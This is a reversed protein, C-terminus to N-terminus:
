TLAVAAFRAADVDEEAFQLEYLRRYIGDRALLEEHTGTEAIRGADMVLIRDARRVTSLRHAIVITTRGQMLNNLAHQVLRESETDLASTAEDLILIPADKLIARAIALRQRQGGSLILGREGVVTDYGAPLKTIFEDALAAQAAQKIAADNDHRGYAGYAINARVTDNFLNVDQTVMAMQRRLAALKLDRVDTGDLLVQGDTVDYFRLLLNTLTSKGAGSHGVIALMEGARVTFSVDELVPLDFGAGYSFSVNHFELTHEFRQLERANPRDRMEAQEDLLKFIRAASALGQQLDHQLRSLRRIPDYSKFMAFLFTVFTGITMEDKRMSQQAYILLLALAVIGITELVIPSVFYIRMARLQDKMQKRTVRGFRESEYAEMGFAKVVRQSSLAEQAVDLMAASSEQRSNVHKRLKRNFTNTLYAVPPALLLIAAALRWNLSFLLVLYVVMTVSERLLDRLTDSVSREVLAADSVLHATLENTPHKGFFPAAQRQLHDYLTQRVDAIVHQGIYSMSYSSFYETLGKALTFGVLLAAIVNWNDLSGVPLWNRLDVWTRAAAAVPANSMLEFIPVLLLTTAGELLGTAVMLVVSLAFIARYPTLFRLLRTFETM